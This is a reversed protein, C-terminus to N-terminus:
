AINRSSCPKEGTQVRYPSQYRSNAAANSAAVHGLPGEPLTNEVDRKWDIGMIEGKRKKSTEKTNRSSEMDNSNVDRFRPTFQALM